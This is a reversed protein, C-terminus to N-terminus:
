FGRIAHKDVYAEGLSELSYIEEEFDEQEQSILDGRYSESALRPLQLLESLSLNSGTNNDTKDM